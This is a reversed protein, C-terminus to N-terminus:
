NEAGARGACIMGRGGGGKQRREDRFPELDVVAAVRAGVRGTGQPVGGQPKGEEIQDAHPLHTILFPLSSASAVTAVV